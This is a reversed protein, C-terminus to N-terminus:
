RCLVLALVMIMPTHLARASCWSQELLQLLQGSEKIDTCMTNLESYCGFGQLVRRSGNMEAEM